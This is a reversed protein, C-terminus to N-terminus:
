AQQNSQGNALDSTKNSSSEHNYKKMLEDIFAHIEETTKSELNFSELFKKGTSRELKAVERNRKEKLKQIQEDISLIKSQTTASM